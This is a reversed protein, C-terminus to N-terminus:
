FSYGAKFEVNYIPHAFEARNGDTIGLEGVNDYNKYLPYTYGATFWLKDGSITFSCGLRFTHHISENDEFYAKDLQYAIHPGIRFYTDPNNKFTYMYNAKAGTIDIGFQISNLTTETKSIHYRLNGGFHSTGLDLGIELSDSLGFQYQYGLTYVTHKSESKKLPKVPALLTYACSSYFFCGITLLCITKIM